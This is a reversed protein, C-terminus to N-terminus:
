FNSELINLFQENEEDTGITLRLSNKIGYSDMKRLLIKNNLFIEFAKDSNLKAKEFNLLFFNAVPENTKINKSIIKDYIITSWKNNHDINKNIWLDDQLAISGAKEAIGNINFPPRFLNAAKIIESSAVGWGLRLNALGFIKSFTRCVVTNKFDKFIELGSKYDKKIVYEAYADDVMLLVNEPLGNRLQLLETSNIYTGTPNNPNAIFVIKTKKTVLSLADEVSFKNNNNKAFKVIAGNLQSYIRYMLFSEEAVIVEDDQNLFSQCILSIIEDSGSGIIIRNENLNFKSSIVAKLKSSEGDPYKKLNLEKKFLDLIKPSPGLASENASLKIPDKVNQIKSLGGVYLNCNVKKPRPLTM